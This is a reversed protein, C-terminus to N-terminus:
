DGKFMFNKLTWFCLLPPCILFFFFSLFYLFGFWCFSFLFLFFNSINGCIM